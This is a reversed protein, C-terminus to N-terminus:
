QSRDDDFPFFTEGDQAQQFPTRGSVLVILKQTQACVNSKTYVMEERTVEHNLHQDLALFGTAHAGWTTVEGDIVGESCHSKYFRGQGFGM